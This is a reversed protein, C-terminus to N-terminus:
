GLKRKSNVLLVKMNSKCLVTEPMTSGNLMQAERYVDKSKQEM